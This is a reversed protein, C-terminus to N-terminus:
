SAPYAPLAEESRRALWMAFSHGLRTRALSASQRSDGGAVALVGDKLFHDVLAPELWVRRGRVQNEEGFYFDTESSEAVWKSEFCGTGESGM